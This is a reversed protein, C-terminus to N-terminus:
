ATTTLVANASYMKDGIRFEPIFVRLNRKEFTCRKRKLETRKLHVNLPQPLLPFVNILQLDESLQKLIKDFYLM